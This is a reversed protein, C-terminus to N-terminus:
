FVLTTEGKGRTLINRSVNTLDSVINNPVSEVVGNRKLIKGNVINYLINNSSASYIISALPNYLPTTSQKNLDWIILDAAYKEKIRGSNFPLALHGRMMMKWIDNVAFDTSDDKIFKGVLAFM